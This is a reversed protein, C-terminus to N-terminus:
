HLPRNLRTDEAVRVPPRHFRNLVRAATENFSRPVDDGSLFSALSEIPFPRQDFQTQIRLLPGNNANAINGSTEDHGWLQFQGDNLEFGFRLDAFDVHNTQPPITSLVEIGLFLNAASITESSMSGSDCQVSGQISKIRGAQLTCNNIAVDCVAQDFRRFPQLLTPLDLQQFYAQNITGSWGEDSNVLESYGAFQCTPGLSKVEPVIDNLLWCPLLTQGTALVLTERASKDERSRQLSLRISNESPDNALKMEINASTVTPYPIVSIEVPSLKLDQGLWNGPRIITADKLTIKWSSSASHTRILSNRLRQAICSLASGHIQIPQEVIIENTVGRILKLEDLHVLQELEADIFRIDRFITVFPLPTEIYSIEADLGLNAKIAQQWHSKSVPHAIRYGVLGVPLACFLCFALRCITRRSNDSMTRAEM